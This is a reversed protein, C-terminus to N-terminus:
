TPLDTSWGHGFPQLRWQRSVERQFPKADWRGGAHPDGRRLRRDGLGCGIGRGQRWGARARCSGGWRRLACRDGSGDYLDDALDVRCRDRACAEKPDVIIRSRAVDLAQVFGACGSGGLDYTPVSRCGLRHQVLAATDPTMMEPTDTALVIEDVDGPTLGADTLASEAAEVALTMTSEDDAAFRRRKIGTRQTIWDDSTDVLSAWEDNSVVREPVYGGFGLIRATPM